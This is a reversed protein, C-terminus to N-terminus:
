EILKLIDDKVFDIYEEVTCKSFNTIVVGRTIGITYNRPQSTFVVYWIMGHDIYEKYMGTDALGQGSLCLKDVGPIDVNDFWILNTAQPNSEHLRQLTEHIIKAERIDANLIGGIAVAVHNSLLKKVGRAVSPAMVVLFNREGHKLIWFPAEETQPSSLVKRRYTHERYFDKTFIGEFIGEKEKVEIVETVLQLDEEGEVKEVERWGTLKGLPNGELSRIEFVKVPLVM